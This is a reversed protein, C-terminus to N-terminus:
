DIYKDHIRSTARPLLVNLALNNDISLFPVALPILPNTMEFEMILKVVCCTTDGLEEQGDHQIQQINFIMKCESAFGPVGDKSYFELLGDDVDSSVCEWVVSLPLLPPLGFIEEVYDGERLPIDVRNNTFSPCKVSHSSLVIQPWNTPTALFNHLNTPSIYPITSSSTLQFAFLTTPAITIFLIIIITTSSIFCRSLMMIQRNSM